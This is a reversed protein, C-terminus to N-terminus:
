AINLKSIYDVLANHKECLEKLSEEIPPPVVWGDCKVIEAKLHELNRAISNMSPDTSCYQIAEKRQDETGHLLMVAAIQDKTEKNM